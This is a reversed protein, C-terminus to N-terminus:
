GLKLVKERILARGVNAVISRTRGKTLEINLSCMLKLTNPIIVHDISGTPIAVDIRQSPYEM